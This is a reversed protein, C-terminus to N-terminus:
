QICLWGKRARAPECLTNECTARPLSTAPQNYYEEILGRATAAAEEYYNKNVSFLRGQKDVLRCDDDTECQRWAFPPQWRSSEALASDDREFIMGVSVVWLLGLGAFATLGFFYKM